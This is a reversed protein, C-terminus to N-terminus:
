GTSTYVGDEFDTMQMILNYTVMLSPGVVRATAGWPGAASWGEWEFVIVDNTQTWRGRYQLGLEVYEMVFAGNEFLVFRSSRTHASVRFAPQSTFVFERSPGTLPPLNSPAPPAAAPPRVPSQIVQPVQTPTAIDLCAASLGILALVTVRAITRVQM